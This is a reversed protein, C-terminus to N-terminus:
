FVCFVHGLFHLLSTHPHFGLDPPLDNISQQWPRKVMSISIVLIWYFLAKSSALSLGELDDFVCSMIFDTFENNLHDNFMITNGWWMVTWTLARFNREFFEQRYDGPDGDEKSKGMRLNVCSLTMDRM